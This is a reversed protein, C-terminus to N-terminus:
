LDRLAFFETREQLRDIVDSPVLVGMKTQASVLLYKGMQLSTMGKNFKEDFREIPFPPASCMRTAPEASVMERKTM